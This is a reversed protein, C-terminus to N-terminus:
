GMMEPPSMPNRGSPHFPRTRVPVHSTRMLPLQISACLGYNWEPFLGLPCRSSIAREDAAREATQERQIRQKVVSRRERTVYQRARAEVVVVADDELDFGVPSRPRSPQRRLEKQRDAP